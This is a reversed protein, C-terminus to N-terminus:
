VKKRLFHSEIELIELIKFLYIPMELWGQGYPMGFTKWRHFFNLEEICEEAEKQFCHDIKFRYGIQKLKGTKKDYDFEEVGLNFSAECQGLKCTKCDRYYENFWHLSMSIKKKM